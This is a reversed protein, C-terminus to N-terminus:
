RKKFQKRISHLFDSFIATLGINIGKIEYKNLTLIGKLYHILVEGMLSWSYVFISLKNYPFIATEWVIYRNYILASFRSEKQLRGGKVEHHIVYGNQAIVIKMKNRYLKHSFQIDEYIAYGGFRELKEELSFERFIQKKYAMSCGSLWQVIEGSNTKISSGTNMGSLMVKRHNTRHSLRFILGYFNSLVKVLILSHSYKKQSVNKFALGAGVVNKDEFTESLASIGDPSVESDDDIFFIIDGNAVKVAD